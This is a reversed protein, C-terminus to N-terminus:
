VAVIVLRGVRNGNIDHLAERAEGYNVADNMANSMRAESIDRLIRVCEAAAEIPNDDGFAANDTEIEIFLKMM